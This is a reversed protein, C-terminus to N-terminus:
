TSSRRAFRRAAEAPKELNVLAVGERYLADWDDPRKLLLRETLTLVTDYKGAALLSDIANFARGADQDASALRSWVAEAESVEGARLYLRQGAPRDRRADPRHRRGGQPVPRRRHRGGRGRGPQGTPHAAGLRPSQGLAAVRAAPPRHRPRRGGPVGPGPLAGTRAAARARPARARAPRHPPRVPEAPPVPRGPPRRRRAQRRTGPDPRLGALLARDGGRDPVPPRPRRGPHQVGQPRVPQGALGPPTRGAGRRGRRPRLVARRVGPAARRQRALRRAARPRGEAGGPDPRAPGRAPRHGVPLRGPEPPRADGPSSGTRRPRRRGPQGAGKRSGASRRGPSSRSRTARRRRRDGGAIAETPKGDAEFYRALRTWRDATADKGADLDARRLARDPMLRPDQGGPLRPDRPGPRGRVARAADALKAAVPWNPWPTSRATSRRRAPRRAQAPPRLRRPRAQGRRDPTRPSGQSLRLRRPGRRAARERGGIKASAATWTALADAPRKLQHYYEGLYERYQAADPALAIARKYLAIADDVM